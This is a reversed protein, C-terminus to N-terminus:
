PGERDAARLSDLKIFDSCFVTENEEVEFLGEVTKSRRRHTLMSVALWWNRVVEGLEGGRGGTLSLRVQEEEEEEDDQKSRKKNTKETKKMGTRQEAKQVNGRSAEM